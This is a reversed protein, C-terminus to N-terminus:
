VGGVRVMGRIDDCNQCYCWYLQQLIVVVVVVVKIEVTCFVCSGGASFGHFQLM